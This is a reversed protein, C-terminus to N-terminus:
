NLGQRFLGLLQVFLSLAAVYTSANIMAHALMSGAISRSRWTLLGLLLAAFPIYLWFLLPYQSAFYVHALTFLVTQFLWIWIEKWNMQRLFGWLFGRFLPEENISAFGLHYLFVMSTTALISTFQTFQVQPNNLASLFTNLNECVSVTLGAFIGVGLWGLSNKQIKAPRYGNLGLLM